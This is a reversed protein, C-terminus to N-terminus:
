LGMKRYKEKIEQTRGKHRTEIRNIITKIIQRGTMGRNNAFYDIAMILIDALEKETTNLDFDDKKIEKLQKDMIGILKRKHWLQFGWTKRITKILYDLDLSITRQM